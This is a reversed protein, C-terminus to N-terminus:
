QAVRHSLGGLRGSASCKGGLFRHVSQIPSREQGAEALLDLLRRPLLQADGQCPQMPKGRGERIVAHNKLTCRSAPSLGLVGYGGAVRWGDEVRRGRGWEFPNLHGRHGALGRYATRRLSSGGFAFRGLFPPDFRDAQGRGAFFPPMVQATERFPDPFHFPRHAYGSLQDM